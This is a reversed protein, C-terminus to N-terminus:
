VEGTPQLNAFAYLVHTLQSAPLQAPKYNRGYIGRAPDTDGRSRRAVSTGTPLTFLTRFALPRRRQKM